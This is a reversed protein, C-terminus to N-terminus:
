WETKTKKKPISQVKLHALTRIKDSPQAVIKAFNRDFFERFDLFRRFLKQVRNWTSLQSIQLFNRRLPNPYLIYFTCRYLIEKWMDGLVYRQCWQCIEYIPTADGSLVLQLLKYRHTDTAKQGGYQPHQSSLIIYYIEVLCQRSECNQQAVATRLM